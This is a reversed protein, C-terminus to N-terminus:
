KKGKQREVVCLFQGTMSPGPVGALLVARWGERLLAELQRKLVEVNGSLVKQETNM